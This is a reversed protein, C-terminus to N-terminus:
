GGLRDLIRPTVEYSGEEQNENGLHVGRSLRRFPARKARIDRFIMGHAATALLINGAAEPLAALM